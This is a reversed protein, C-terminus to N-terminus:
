TRSVVDMCLHGQARGSLSGPVTQLTGALNRTLRQQGSSESHMTPSQKGQNSLKDQRRKWQFPSLSLFLRPPPKPCRKCNETKFAPFPVAAPGVPRSSPRPTQSSKLVWTPSAPRGRPLRVTCRFSFAARAPAAPCHTVGVLKLGRGSDVVPLLILGAPSISGGFYM